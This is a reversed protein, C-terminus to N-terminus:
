QLYDSSILVIANEQQFSTRQDKKWGSGFPFPVDTINIM